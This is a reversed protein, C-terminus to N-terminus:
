LTKFRETELAFVGKRAIFNKAMTTTIIMEDVVSFGKCPPHVTKVRSDVAIIKFFILIFNIIVLCVATSKNTQCSLRPPPLLAVISTRM